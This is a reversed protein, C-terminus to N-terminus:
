APRRIGSYTGIVVIMVLLVGVLVIGNTQEGSDDWNPPLDPTPTPTSTIKIKQALTSQSPPPNLNKGPSARRSTTCGGILVVILLSIIIIRIVLGADIQFPLSYKKM